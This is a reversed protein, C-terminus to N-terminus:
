ELQACSWFLVLVNCYLSAKMLLIESQLCEFTSSRVYTGTRLGAMKDVAVSHKEVASEKEGLRLEAEYLLETIDVLMQSSISENLLQSFPNIM